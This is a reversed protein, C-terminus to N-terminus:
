NELNGLIDDIYKTNRSYGLANKRNNLNLKVHEPSHSLFLNLHNPWTSLFPSSSQTFLHVIISTTPFLGLPLGLFVHIFVNSSSIVLHARDGASPFSMLKHLSLIYPAFHGVQTFRSVCYVCTPMVASSYTFYCRHHIWTLGPRGNQVM